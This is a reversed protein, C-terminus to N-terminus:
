KLEFADVSGHAIFVPWRVTRGCETTCEMATSSDVPRAVPTRADREEALERHGRVARLIQEISRREDVVDLGGDGVLAAVLSPPYGPRARDYAAADDGFSIARNM